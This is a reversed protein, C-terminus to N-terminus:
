RRNWTEISEPGRIVKRVIRLEGADGALVRWQVLSIKNDEIEISTVGKTHVCCGINFYPLEHRRPFKMRHTHGCILIVNHKELWRCYKKEMKHRKLQNKAPSAPNRVGVLHMFKWFYRVGLMSLLWLRDNLLDGQHGHVVLIEQGSNKEKLLLAEIPRMKYFLKEYKEKYEDYFFYYNRRVFYKDRLYINHNGYMMYFRNEDFFKKLLTFVDMHASRIFKFNSHEWLDDGDGAEVYTFHNDYYYKLASLVITQNRAFEDSVSDDGRHCDSFFVYKSQADFEKVVAGNYAQTLRSDKKM